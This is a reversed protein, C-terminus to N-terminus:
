KKVGKDKKKSNKVQKSRCKIISDKSGKCHQPTPYVKDVKYDEDSWPISDRDVEDISDEEDEVGKDELTKQVFIDEDGCYSDYYTYPNYVDYGNAGVKKNNKNKKYQNIWKYEKKSVNELASKVDFVPKSDTFDFLEDLKIMYRKCSKTLSCSISPFSEEMDGLTIHIGDMHEEDSNDVGSHFAGMNAHSHITGVVNTLGDLEYDLSASSVEQKPAVISYTNTTDDLCLIVIAESKHQKYVERFFKWSDLIIHFPIDPMNITCTNEINFDVLGNINNVKIIQDIFGGSEKLYIGDGAVIYGDSYEKIPKDDVAYQISLEDTHQIKLTM